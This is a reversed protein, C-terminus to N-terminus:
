NGQIRKITKTFINDRKGILLSAVEAVYADFKPIDLNEFGDEEQWSVALFGIPTENSFLTVTRSAKVGNNTYLIKTFEDLFDQGEVWDIHGEAIVVKLANKVQVTPINQLSSATQAIGPSLAESICSVKWLSNDPSFSTGNHCGLLVVRSAKQSALIKYLVGNILQELKLTYMLSHRYKDVRPQALYKWVWGSVLLFGLWFSPSTLIDYTPIVIKGGEEVIVKTNTQNLSEM